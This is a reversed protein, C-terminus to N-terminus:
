FVLQKSTNKGLTKIKLAIVCICTYFLVISVSTVPSAFYENRTAPSETAFACKQMFPSRKRKPPSVNEKPELNSM